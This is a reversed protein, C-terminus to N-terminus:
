GFFPLAKQVMRYNHILNAIKSLLKCRDKQEPTTHIAFHCEYCLIMLNEEKNNIKETLTKTTNQEPPGKKAFNV